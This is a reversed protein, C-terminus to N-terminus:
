LNGHTKRNKLERPSCKVLPLSKLFPVSAGNLRALRSVQWRAHSYNLRRVRCVGHSLIRVAM